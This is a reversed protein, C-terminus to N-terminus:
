LGDGYGDLDVRAAIVPQRPNHIDCIVLESSAWVGVYMWGNRAVVSQAEGTRVSSLHVPHGPDSVDVLEVGTHTSAIMAIHGTLEIGTALGATDYHCLIRPKDPQHVDIIFLGDERSTIYATKDKVAIQRVGGLGGIQGVVRPKAPNSLDAIQLQQRGIIYLFGGEIAVDMSPGIGAAQMPLQQAQDMPTEAGACLIGVLLAVLAGFIPKCSQFATRVPNMM